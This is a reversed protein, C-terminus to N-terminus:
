MRSPTAADVAWATATTPIYLITPMRIQAKSSKLFRHAHAVTCPTGPMGAATRGAVLVAVVRCHSDSHGHLSALPCPTHGTTAAHLIPFILHSNGHAINAAPVTQPRLATSPWSHNPTRSNTQARLSSKGAPLSSKGSHRLVPHPITSRSVKPSPIQLESIKLKGSPDQTSCASDPCLMPPKKLWESQAKQAM